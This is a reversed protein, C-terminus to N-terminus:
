LIIDSTVLQPSGVLQIEFEPSLNGTTNGQLIGGSYRIQGPASFARTGIYTFAQNGPINSNADITSLDIQDGPLNGNGVFDNIVDRLLGPQSDSVSNFKFVDNGSGGYLTDKGPGGNLTDNGGVGFLADNGENGGLYDNGGVGFFNDGVLVDNLPGGFLFDKGAGGNINYRFFDYGSLIDDGNFGNIYVVDDTNSSFQNRGSDNYDSLIDPGDEGM